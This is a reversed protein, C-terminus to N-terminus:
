EGRWAGAARFTAEVADLDGRELADAMESAGDALRRLLAAVEVGSEVFLDRWMAPNSAALRTADRGGPGLEEPTRGAAELARALLVSAVQPLHSAGVMRRDHDEADIWEPRAALMEWFRQAAARIGPDGTATSLWVPTDTYLDSRSAGFGSRHSGAMPHASVWRDALGQNAAIRLLPEQLSVVDQIWASPPAHAAVVAALDPLASLPAAIVVGDVGDVAHAADSAVTVGPLTGAQAADNFDPAWVRVDRGQMGLARALSGGMVGAGLIAVEGRM